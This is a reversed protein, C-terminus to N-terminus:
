QLAKNGVLDVTGTFRASMQISLVGLFLPRFYPVVCIDRTFLWGCVEIEQKSCFRGLSAGTRRRLWM